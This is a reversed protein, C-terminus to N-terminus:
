DPTAPHRPRAQSKAQDPKLSLTPPSREQRKWYNSQEADHASQHHPDFASLHRSIKASQLRSDFASIWLKIPSEDRGNLLLSSFASFKIIQLVSDNAFRQRVILLM